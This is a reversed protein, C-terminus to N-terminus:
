KLFCAKLERLIKTAIVADFDIKDEKAGKIKDIMDQCQNAMSEGMSLTKKTGREIVEFNSLHERISAINKNVTSRYNKRTNMEEANFGVASGTLLKVAFAPQAAIVIKVLAQMNTSLKIKDSFVNSGSEPLDSHRIGVMYLKAAAAHWCDRSVRDAHVADTIAQIVVPSAMTLQVESPIANATDTKKVNTM